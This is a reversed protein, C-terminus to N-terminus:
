ADHASLRSFGCAQHQLDVYALAIRVGDLVPGNFPHLNRFASNLAALMGPLAAHVDGDRHKLQAALEKQMMRQLYRGGQASPKCSMVAALIHQKDAQPLFLVHHFLVALCTNIAAITNLVPLQPFGSRKSVILPVARFLLAGQGARVQVLSIDGFPVKAQWAASSWALQALQEGQVKVSGISRHHFDESPSIHRHVYCESQM